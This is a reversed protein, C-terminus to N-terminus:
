AQSAASTLHLAELYREADIAAKCGTGAATIAQRYIPDMVDGCAFVGEVSTKTTPEQCLIFGHADTEIQGDLFRTNPEHGIAIFLGQTPVETTEGSVRNRLVVARIRKEEVGLVDEVVSNWIFEIKPNAFARQQMIKSARLEDRRHIVTVRTAFKTLFMAEELATDGGGVVMVEKGKYFAGDCTACASVGGGARLLAQEAPLNLWRARAGTSIIFTQTRLERGDELAITFPRERLDVRQIDGRLYITGFREAQRRMVDVLEPGTIGHEFGPYNEVETTLTLQGGADFGEVVIPALEARASYLAATLGAPGSGAIVVKHVKEYLEGDM